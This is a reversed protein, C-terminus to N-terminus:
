QACLFCCFVLTYVILDDTTADNVSDTSDLHIESPKLHMNFKDIFRGVTSTTKNGKKGPIATKKKLPQNSVNDMPARPDFRRLLYTDLVQLLGYPIPYILDFVYHVALISFFIKSEKDV